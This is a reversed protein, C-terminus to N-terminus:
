RKLHKLKLLSAQSLQLFLLVSGGEHYYPVDIDVYSAASSVSIIPRNVSQELQYKGM